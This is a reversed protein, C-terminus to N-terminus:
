NERILQRIKEAEEEKTKSCKLEEETVTTLKKYKYEPHLVKRRFELNNKDSFEKLVIKIQKFYADGKKKESTQHYLKKFFIDEM